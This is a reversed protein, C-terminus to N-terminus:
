KQEIGLSSYGPRMARCQEFLGRRIRDLCSRLELALDIGGERSHLIMESGILAFPYIMLVISAEGLEHFWQEYLQVEHAQLPPGPFAM